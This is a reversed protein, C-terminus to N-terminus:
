YTYNNNPIPLIPVLGIDVYQTGNIASFLDDGVKIDDM